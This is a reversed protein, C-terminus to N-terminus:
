NLNSFESLDIKKNSIEVKKAYYTLKIGFDTEVPKPKITYDVEFYYDKVKKLLGLPSQNSREVGYAIITETDVRFYVMGWPYGQKFHPKDYDETEDYLCGYFLQGSFIRKVFKNIRM